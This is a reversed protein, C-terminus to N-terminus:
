QKRLLSLLADELHPYRFEFGAALLKAPVARQGNLLVGAMEGLLLRLAVAPAPWFSPRGLTQGLARALTKNTV